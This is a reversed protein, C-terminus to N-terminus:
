ESSLDQEKAADTPIKENGDFTKTCKTANDPSSLKSVDDSQLQLRLMNDNSTGEEDSEHKSKVDMFVINSQGPEDLNM